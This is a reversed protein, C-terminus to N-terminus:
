IKLTFAFRALRYASRIGEKKPMLKKLFTKDIFGSGRFIKNDLKNKVGHKSTIPLTFFYTLKLIM